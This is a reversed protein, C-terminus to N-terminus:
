RVLPAPRRVIPRRPTMKIRLLRPVGGILDYSSMVSWGLEGGAEDIVLGALKSSRSGECGARRERSNRRHYVAQWREM